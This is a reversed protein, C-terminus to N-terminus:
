EGINGSDRTLSMIEETSLSTDAKGRVFDFPSSERVEPSEAKVLYVRGDEEHFEVGTNPLFGHRERVEQPITVQGKQTINM